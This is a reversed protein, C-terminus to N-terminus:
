VESDNAVELVFIPTLKLNVKACYIDNRLRLIYFVLSTKNQKKLFFCM